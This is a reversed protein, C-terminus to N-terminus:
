EGPALGSWFRVYERQHAIGVELALRMGEPLDPNADRLAEFTALKDRHAALQGVALAAPDGGFFLKLTGPDRTEYLASTPEARWAEFAARGTATLRFFCCLRGGEEREEDLLGDVALRDCEAYLQTHPISWFNFVGIQARQKLEYPTAPEHQDLLGLVVYSAETLARTSM